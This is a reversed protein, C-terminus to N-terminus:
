ATRERAGATHGLRKLRTGDGMRECRVEVDREGLNFWINSLSTGRIFQMFIYKTEAANDTSALYGYVEPIPLGFSHLFGMTAVESAVVLKKPITIPYPICAVMQFKNRMTILFTCHSGGEALKKLNLVDTPSQDVSAAALQLLGGVNFVHRCEAHCLADNISFVNSKHTLCFVGYM